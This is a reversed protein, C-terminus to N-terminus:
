NHNVLPLIWGGELAEAFQAETMGRHISRRRYAYRGGLGNGVAAAGVFGALRVEQLAEPNYAGYPYAFLDVPGGLATALDQRSGAIESELTAVNARRLYSHSRGHAGVRALGSAVMARVEPWVLNSVQEGDGVRQQSRHATDAGIWDSVLFLEFPARHKQLLPFAAAYVCAAGDDFSIAVPKEPLPHDPHLADEVAVLHYGHAELYGLEGDLQEPPVDREDRTGCGVEHYLLVPVERQCATTLLLALAFRM